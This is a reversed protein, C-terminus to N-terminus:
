VMKLWHIRMEAGEPGFIACQRHRLCRPFTSFVHQKFKLGCPFCHNSCIHNQRFYALVLTSPIYISNGIVITIKPYWPIGGSESVGMHDLLGL